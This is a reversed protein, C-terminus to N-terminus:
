PKSRQLEAWREAAVHKAQWMVDGIYWRIQGCTEFAASPYLVFALVARADGPDPEDPSTYVTELIM